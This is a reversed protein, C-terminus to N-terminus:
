KHKSAFEDIVDLLEYMNSYPNLQFPKEKHSCSKIYNNVKKSNERAREIDEETLFRFLEKNAKEYKLIGKQKLHNRLQSNSILDDYNTYATTSDSFHFLLWIEFCVNSLAVFVGNKDAKTLADSHLADTYKHIAERDYVVWFVDDLLLQEKALSKAKVAVDVLQKPTNKKTPEIDIVKLRNNESFKREIYGKLYNPETKEGECFIHLRPKVDRTKRNNKKPMRM